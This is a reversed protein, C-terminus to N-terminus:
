AYGREARLKKNREENKRHQHRQAMFERTHRAYKKTMSVNIDGLSVQPQRHHQVVTKPGPIKEKRRFFSSVKDIFKGM